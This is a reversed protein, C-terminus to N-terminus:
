NRSGSMDYSDYAVRHTHTHAVALPAELRSVAPHRLFAATSRHQQKGEKSNEQFHEPLSYPHIPM